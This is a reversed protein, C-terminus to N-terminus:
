LGESRLRREDAIVCFFGRCKQLRADCREFTQQENGAPAVIMEILKAINPSITDSPTVSDLRRVRHQMRADRFAETRRATLIFNESVVETEFRFSIAHEVHSNFLMKPIAANGEARSIKM